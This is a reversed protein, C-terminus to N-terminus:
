RHHNWIKVTPEQLASLFEILPPLVTPWALPPAPRPKRRPRASSSWRSEPPNAVFANVEVLLRRSANLMTERDGAVEFGVELGKAVSGTGSDGDQTGDFGFLHLWEGGTPISRERSLVKWDRSTFLVLHAKEDAIVRLWNTSAPQPFRSEASEALRKEAEARNQRQQKRALGLLSAGFDEVTVDAPPMDPYAVRAKEYTRRGVTRRNAFYSEAVKVGAQFDYSIGIELVGYTHHEEILAGDVFHRFILKGSPHQEHKFEHEM